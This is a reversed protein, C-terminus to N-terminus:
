PWCDIVKEVFVWGVGWWKRWGWEMCLWRGFRLCRTFVLWVFIWCDRWDWTRRIVEPSHLYLFIKRFDGVILEECSRLTDINRLCFDLWLLNFCWWRTDWCRQFSLWGRHNWKNWLNRLLMLLEIVRRTHKIPSDYNRPSTQLIQFFNLFRCIILSRIKPLFVWWEISSKRLRAWNRLFIFFSM